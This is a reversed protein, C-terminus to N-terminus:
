RINCAPCTSQREDRAPKSPGPKSVGILRLGRRRVTQSTSLPMSAGRKMVAYGRGAHDFLQIAHRQGSVKGVVPKGHAINSRDNV